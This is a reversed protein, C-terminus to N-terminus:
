LEIEGKSLEIIINRIKTILSDLKRDKEIDTAWVELKKDNLELKLKTEDPVGMKKPFILDLIDKSKAYEFITKLESTVIKEPLVDKVIITRVNSLEFEGSDNITFTTKGKGFNENGSELKILNKKM